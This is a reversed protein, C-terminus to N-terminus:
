VRVHIFDPEASFCVALRNSRGDDGRIDGFAWKAASSGGALRVLAAGLLDLRRFLNNYIQM